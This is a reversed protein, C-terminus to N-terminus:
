IRSLLDNNERGPTFKLFNLLWNHANDMELEM